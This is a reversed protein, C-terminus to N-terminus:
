AAPPQPASGPTTGQPAAAPPLQSVPADEPAGPAPGAPPASAASPSAPPAVATAAAAPVAQMPQAPPMAQPPQAAQAPPAQPNAGEELSGRFERIGQGLARALDPLRKPGLVILAVIAIFLLHVPSEIGM